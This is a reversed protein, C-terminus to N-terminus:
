IVSCYPTYLFLLLLPRIPTNCRLIKDMLKSFTWSLEAKRITHVRLKDLPIDGDANVMKVYHLDITPGKAPTRAKERKTGCGLVMMDYCVIETLM